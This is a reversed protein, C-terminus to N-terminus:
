EIEERILLLVGDIMESVEEKFEEDAEMATVIAPSWEYYLRILEKGEQTQHLVTDRFYRLLHTEESDDGYIEISPCSFTTTTAPIPPGGDYYADVASGGIYTLTDELSTVYAIRCYGGDGAGPTYPKFDATEGWDTGQSNKCIWCQQADDYGIIQVFHGAEMKSFAPIPEYIGGTYFFWDPYFSMYCNVPKNVLVAKINEPYPIANINGGIFSYSSLKQARSEVDICVKSCSPEIGPWQVNQYPFCAEDPVGSDVLFDFAFDTWNGLCGGRYSGGDCRVGSPVCSVLYQESLDISLTPDNHHLRILTELTDVSAFAYCSGCLLGQNKVPSIWNGGKYNRWDLYTPFDDPLTIREGEPMMYFPDCPDPSSLNTFEELSLESLSTKGARWKYGRADIEKQLSEVSWGKAFVLSNCILPLSVLVTIIGKLGISQLGM